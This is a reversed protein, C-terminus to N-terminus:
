DRPRSKGGAAFIMWRNPHLKVDLGRTRLWIACAAECMKASHRDKVKWWVRWEKQTVEDVGAKRIMSAGNMRLAARERESTARKIEAKEDTSLRPGRRAPRTRRPRRIIGKCLIREVQKLRVTAQDTRRRFVIQDLLIM